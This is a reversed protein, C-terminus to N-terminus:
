VHQLPIVIVIYAILPTTDLIPVVSIDSYMLCTLSPTQPLITLDCTTLCM